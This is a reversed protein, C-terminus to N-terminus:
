ILIKFIEAAIRQAADPKAFRKASASMEKAKKPNDIIYEVESLVMHPMLNKDGLIIAAGEKEYAEANKEQHDGASDALPILVSPKGAAAIEFIAGSGARSVIVDSIYYASAMEIEDLVPYLHYLARDEKNKIEVFAEKRLDAYNQEGCQHIIEYKKLFEPLALIVLNNIQQAGQSGGLIFVIPRESKIKLVERPNEPALSFLSERIPNGAVITKRASFFRLTADFSVIIKKSFVALLKNAAGPIIDSEHIIVPIRFLWGVFVAPASGYGGKAFIADPMFWFVYWYAQIIGIPMLLIDLFNLVSFYRRIKGAFIARAPIGEKKFISSSYHDPGIFLFESQGYGRVNSIQKIKRSVAILPFAHGGSGGGALLIRM